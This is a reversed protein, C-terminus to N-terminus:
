KWRGIAEISLNVGFSGWGDEAYFYYGPVKDTPLVGNWFGQEVASHQPCVIKANLYEIKKFNLPYEVETTYWQRLGVLITNSKICSLGTTVCWCKFLGNNYRRWYWTTGSAVTTEGEFYDRKYLGDMTSTIMQVNTELGQLKAIKENIQQLTADDTTLCLVNKPKPDLAKYEEESGVWVEIGTQTNKEIIRYSSDALTGSLNQEFNESMEQVKKASAASTEIAEKAREMLQHIAGTILSQVRAFGTQRDAFVIRGDKSYVTVPEADADAGRETAVLRLVARGGDQTWALPLLFSVKGDSVPLPDTKDYAGTSSVLQIYLDYGSQLKSPVTFEVQTAHHDGQVGAKQISVPSVEMNEGVTWTITRIAM